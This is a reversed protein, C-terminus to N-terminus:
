NTRAVKCWHLIMAKPSLGELWIETHRAKSVQRWRYVAPESEVTEHGALPKLFERADAPLPREETSPRAVAEVVYSRLLKTWYRDFLAASAFADAWAIEAGYAVVVGVVQEGKLGATARGFRRGIEEAFGEVAGSVQRSQYIRAYSESRAEGSIVGGVVGAMGGIAGGPIGGVVGGVVAPPMGDPIRTPAGGAADAQVRSSGGRVAAWVEQQNQDVAARERVSPHAMLKAATFQASPGSWRGREVCFVDLPLPEAGPPVIRDKAIVRDQKGGTVVEGALLMLPKSGRYVLVLRNVEAGTGAPAQLVRTDGGRSRRLMDGGQEAVVAEGALIAEDLTAYAAANGGGSALIPFLSLNEYSVPAALRWESQLSNGAPGSSEMSYAVLGLGLAVAPVLWWGAGKPSAFRTNM